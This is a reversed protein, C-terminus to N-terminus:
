ACSTGCLSIGSPREFTLNQSFRTYPCDPLPIAAKAELTQGTKISDRVAGLEKSQRAEKRFVPEWKEPLVRALTSATFIATVCDAGRSFRWVLLDFQEIFLRPWSHSVM